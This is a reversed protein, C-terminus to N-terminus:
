GKLAFKYISDYIIEAAEKPYYKGPLSPCMVVSKPISKEDYEFGYPKSALELYTGKYKNLEECTFYNYPATNFVMDCDNLYESIDNYGISNIYRPDVLLETYNKTVIIIDVGIDELMDCLYKGIRGNGVVMITKGNYKSESFAIEITAKATLYANELVFMDEELLNIGDINDFSKNKNITAYVYKANEWNSIIKDIEINYGFILNDGYTKTPIPMVILDYNNHEIDEYKYCDPELFDIHNKSGNVLLLRYLHESRKDYGLVLVRYM